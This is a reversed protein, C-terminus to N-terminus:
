SEIRAMTDAMDDRMAGTLNAIGCRKRHIKAHRFGTVDPVGIDIIARCNLCTAKGYDGRYASVSMGLAYMEKQFAGFEDLTYVGYIKRM